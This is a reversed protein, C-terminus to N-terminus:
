KYSLNLKGDQETTSIVEPSFAGQHIVFNSNNDADQIALASVSFFYATFPRLNGFLLSQNSMNNLQQLTLNFRNNQINMVNDPYPMSLTANTEIIYGLIPGNPTDPYSWRLIIATSNLPSAMVNTPELPATPDTVVTGADAFDGPGASTYARVRVRYESFTQLDNILVTYVSTSNDFTSPSAEM